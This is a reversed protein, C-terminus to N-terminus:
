GLRYGYVYVTGSFTAGAGLTFSTYSVTDAIHGQTYGFESSSGLDLLYTGSFRTYKALFPAFLEINLNAYTTTGQGAYGWETTADQGNGNVTANNPSNKIRTSYYINTATTGMKMNINSTTSLTSGGSLMIKYNDYAASFAGTVTTSTGSLAQSKIFVLGSNALYTNTDAATLVEGTTFTKIAM